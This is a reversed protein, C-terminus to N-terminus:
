ADAAAAPPSSATGTKGGVKQGENPKESTAKKDGAETAPAPAPAPTTQDPAPACVPFLTPQISSSSSALMDLHVLQASASAPLCFKVTPRSLYLPLHIFM